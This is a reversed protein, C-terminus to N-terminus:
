STVERTDIVEPGVGSDHGMDPPMDATPLNSLEDPTAKIEFGPLKACVYTIGGGFFDDRMELVTVTMGNYVAQLNDRRCQNLDFPRKSM